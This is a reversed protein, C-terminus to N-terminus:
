AAKRHDNRNALIRHRLKARWDFYVVLLGGVVATPLIVLAFVTAEVTLWVATAAATLVVFLSILALVIAVIASQTAKKVTGGIGGTPQGVSLM